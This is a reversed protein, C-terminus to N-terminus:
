HVRFFKAADSVPLTVGNGTVGPVPQWDPATLSPSAVLKGSGTWSVTVSDGTRSVSVVPAPVVAGISYLGVNDLGWYWSDTGAHAFRLRVKAQNDAQPLRFKEIRKSGTADDNGRGQIFPALNASIPAAIFAGYTGGLEAGNDDTYRAIDSRETNFTAEADVDGAETRVLDDRDLLYAVPLWTAGSDVTYEVAAISDQNQEWLSHFVLHVDTKGTLNFDPSQLFLVQSAGTRYGSNGLVMRGSALPGTLVRGNVVNIPNPTLVRRYDTEWSDPNDPNSYTIFSGTFRAVDVVVWNAYSASNLDGLDFEPNDVASYSKSVWGAPLQGEATADFTELVIPSPLVLNEWAGITVAVDNTFRNAPTADDSFTLRFTSSSGSVLLASNTYTVTTEGALTVVTPTVASGNVALGVSGPVVKTTGDALTARYPVVPPLGSANDGPTVGVVRPLTATVPTVEFSESALVEYGDDRLLFAVYDGPVNLGGAFKISGAGVGTTGGQTGDVYNWRTSNQSGPTVGTPYIGIWDKPNAPGNTFTVSIATGVPYSRSGVHVLPSGPDLVTFSTEALVEYGDNKLFFAKWVGGFSLGTPFRVSGERLGFNGSQTGDVYNWRTSDQSGPTVGDPYIGIWDKTNGPGGSFSVVIPDEPLYNDHGAMVKPTQGLATGAALLGAVAILTYKM